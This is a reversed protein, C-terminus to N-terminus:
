RYSTQRQLEINIDRRYVRNGDNPESPRDQTGTLKIFKIGSNPYRTTTPASGYKLLVRKIGEEFLHLETRILSRITVKYFLLEALHKGGLGKNEDFGLTRDMNIAPFSDDPLFWEARMTAPRPIIHEDYLFVDFTSIDTNHIIFEDIFVDKALTTQSTNVGLYIALTDNLDSVNSTITGM